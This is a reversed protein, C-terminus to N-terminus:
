GGQPSWLLVRVFQLNSLDALPRLSVSLQLAGPSSSVSAVTGVPIGAPFAELSLGSTVMKDGRKVADGVNLDEVQLDFGQGEGKAAGIAGSRVDRVGVVSTPDNVLTVTALHASVLTVSGVLGGASVVPQGVAVGNASGRDIEVTEEYNSSGVQVVEAAVSPINAVFSLHEEALVQAAEQEASLAQAYTNQARELEQRLERNQAELSRYQLAGYIFDGVPQLATHVGSQFPHAVERALSRARDFYHATSTRESLTVLTVGLLM